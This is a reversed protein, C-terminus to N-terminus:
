PSSACPWLVWRPALEANIVGARVVLNTEQESCQALGCADRDSLNWELSQLTSHVLPSLSKRGVAGYGPRKQMYKCCGERTCV